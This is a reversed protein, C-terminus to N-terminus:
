INNLVNLACDFWFFGTLLDIMSPSAPGRACLVHGDSAM